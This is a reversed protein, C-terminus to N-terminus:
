AGCEHMHSVKEYSNAIAATTEAQSSRQGADLFVGIRRLQLVTEDKTALENSLELFIFVNQYTFM